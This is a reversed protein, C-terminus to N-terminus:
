ATLLQFYFVSNGVLSALPNVDLGFARQERSKVMVRLAKECPDPESGDVFGCAKRESHSLRLRVEEKVADSYPEIIHKPDNGKAMTERIISVLYEAMEDNNFAGQQTM